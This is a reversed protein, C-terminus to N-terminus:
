AQVTRQHQADRWRQPEAINVLVVGDEFRIPYNDLGRTAPPALVNGAMDFSSGHCPCVFKKNEEDWALSCGLHTCKKSLALFGGSQDRVLFFRGERIPTVSGVTFDDATGAAIVDGSTKESGRQKNSHLISGFIWATEICAIGALFKWLANLIRRRPPPRDAESLHTEPLSGSQSM